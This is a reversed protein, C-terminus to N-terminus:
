STAILYKDETYINLYSFKTNSTHTTSRNQCTKQKLKISLVHKLLPLKSLNIKLKKNEKLNLKFYSLM